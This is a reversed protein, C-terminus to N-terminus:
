WDESDVFEIEVSSLYEDLESLAKEIAGGDQAKAADEIEKGRDTLFQFGYGGGSGKMRHGQVRLSEWDGQALYSKLDTVTKRIGELYGPILDELDKSIEVKM